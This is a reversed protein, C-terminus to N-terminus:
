GGSSTSHDAMYSIVNGDPETVSLDLDNCNDWLLTIRILTNYNGGLEKVRKKIKESTDTKNKEPTPEPTPEPEKPPVPKTAPPPLKHTCNKWGPLVGPGGCVGCEDVKNGLCDCFGRAFDVGSGGCVGCTDVM